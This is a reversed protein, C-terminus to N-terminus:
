KIWFHCLLIWIISVIFALIGEGILQPGSSDSIRKTKWAFQSFSFPNGNMGKRFGKYVYLFGIIFGFVPIGVLIIIHKTNMKRRM